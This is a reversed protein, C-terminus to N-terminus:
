VCKCWSSPRVAIPFICPDQVDAGNNKPWSPAQDNASSFARVLWLKSRAKQLKERCLKAKLHHHHLLVIGSTELCPFSFLVRFALNM